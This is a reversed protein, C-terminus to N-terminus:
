RKGKVMRANRYVQRMVAAVNTCGCRGDGHALCSWRWFVPVVGIGDAEV